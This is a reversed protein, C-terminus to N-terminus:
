REHSRDTEPVAHLVTAPLEVFCRGSAPRERVDVRLAEALGEVRVSVRHCDGLFVDDAVEGGIRNVGPEARLRLDCPRGVLLMPAGAEGGRVGESWSGVELRYSAGNSEVTAHKGDGESRARLLNAAGLFEAAFRTRPTRYLVAPPGTEVIRGGRMLVIRNSFALAESQDHTVFVTTVRLERLLARLAERTSERLGADLNSLPEDLLLVRPRIAIARALAVRQQQGGSLQDPRRDDLGSLQVLELSEAIATASESKSARRMQLGFAVNEAVTMHPFLAYNQFVLGMQRREPPWRTIDDGELRVAGATPRELGAIMRLASTKGCGSPGLFTVIEGAAMNISMDSVADDPAGPYRLCLGDLSLFPSDSVKCKGIQHRQGVDVDM